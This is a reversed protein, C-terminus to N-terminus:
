PAVIFGALRAAAANCSAVIAGAEELAEVQRGLGQPDGETGTVSTVVLLERGGGAALKRAERIAQGLESAPDPHAGYGLVVDLIIVAVEPDRAEKLLRHIRLQNDIMPHPRGVTFEDEGLDVASHGESQTANALEWEPKLPVNSLVKGLIGEWIVLAESALTGGSFLGRLYKQRPTLLGKRESARARLDTEECDLAEEVSPGEYGEIREAALYAAEQLTAAPIAGADVIPGTDGGLFCVVTPKESKAAQQLIREAVLPSPLKSLLVLVQTAPDTQLASVGELMTTGGVAEKLDRGGTGIAQSIGMGQRALLTSVEQLGTGAAAVIGVPGRPVVNAFGLAIGNIITTGCDPGMMLLGHEVAYDKLAVEDKISVNDSFLLVHLGRHLAEWAEDAAYQGPVSIVALNADPNAQVAVRVTRPQFGSEAATTELRQALHRDAASLARDAAAESDAEVVIVLDNAGARDIEPLLLGAERLIGKNAETAMVVAADSVGPLATLERATEMLTVSDHYESVKITCKTHLQDETKAAQVV